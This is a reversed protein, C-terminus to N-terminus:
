PKAFVQFSVIEDYDLEQVKKRLKQLNPSVHLFDDEHDRINTIIVGNSNLAAHFREFYRLPDSVHEFFETAFCIDCAPLDPVFSKESCELFHMEIRDKECLWALFDKRITSIDALYVSCNKGQSSLFKALSRSRHALGCGFDLITVDERAAVKRVIPDDATWHREPYSLMRLFHRPAHFRYVEFIEKDTNDVFVKYLQDALAGQMKFTPGGHGGHFTAWSERFRRESDALSIDLRKSNWEIFSRQTSTLSDLRGNGRLLWYALQTRTKRISSVVKKALGKITSLM